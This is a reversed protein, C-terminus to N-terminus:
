KSTIVEFKRRKSTIVVYNNRLTDALVPKSIRYHSARPMASVSFNIHLRSVALGRAPLFCGHGTFLCVLRASLM